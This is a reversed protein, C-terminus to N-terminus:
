YVITKQRHGPGFLPANSSGSERERQREKEVLLIKLCIHRAWVYLFLFRPLPGRIKAIKTFLSLGNGRGGGRLSLWPGRCFRLGCFITYHTYMNIVVIDICLYGSSPRPAARVPAPPPCFGGDFLYVPLSITYMYVHTHINKRADCM